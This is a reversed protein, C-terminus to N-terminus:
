PLFVAVPQAESAAARCDVTAAATVCSPHAHAPMMTAIGIKAATYAVRMTWLTCKWGKRQRLSRIRAAIIM